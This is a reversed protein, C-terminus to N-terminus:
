YSSSNVQAAAASEAVTRFFKEAKLSTKAQELQKELTQNDFQLKKAKEQIKEVASDTVNRHFTQVKLSNKAKLLQEELSQIRALYDDDVVQEQPKITAAFEPTWRHALEVKLQEKLSGQLGEKRGEEEEKNTFKETKFSSMAIQEDELLSLNDTTTQLKKTALEVKEQFKEDASDVIMNHHFTEVKLSNNETNGLILQEEELSHILAVLDAAAAKVATWHSAVVIEDEFLEEKLSGKQDIIFKEAAKLSNKTARILQEEEEKIFMQMVELNAKMEQDTVVKIYNSKRNLIQEPIAQGNKKVVLITADNNDGFCGGAKEIARQLTKRDPVTSAVVVTEGKISLQPSQQQKEIRAKKNNTATSKPRDKKKGFVVEEQGEHNLPIYNGFRRNGDEKAVGLVTRSFFHPSKKNAGGVM